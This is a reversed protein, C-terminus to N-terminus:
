HKRSFSTLLRRVMGNTILYYKRTPPSEDPVGSNSDLQEIIRDADIKALCDKVQYTQVLAALNHSPLLERTDLQQAEGRVKADLQYAHFGTSSRVEKAPRQSLLAMFYSKDRRLVHLREYLGVLAIVDVSFRNGLCHAPGRHAKHRDLSVILQIHLSLNLSLLISCTTSTFSIPRRVVPANPCERPSM